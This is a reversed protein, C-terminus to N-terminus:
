LRRDGLYTVPHGLMQELISSVSHANREWEWKCWWAAQPSLRLKQHAFRGTRHLSPLSAALGNRKKPKSRPDTLRSGRREAHARDPPATRDPSRRGTKLTLRPNM